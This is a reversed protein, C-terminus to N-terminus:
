RQDARVPQRLDHNAREQQQVREIRDLITQVSSAIWPKGTRSPRHETDLQRAISKYGLGQDRLQVIRALTVQEGDRAGFPKRGECRGTKERVMARARKLKQVILSKDLESFVGQIQIMARMMPDAQVAATVDQGTTADILVLQRSALHTLLHMQVSLPRTKQAFELM